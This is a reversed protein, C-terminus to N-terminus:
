SIIFRGYASLREEMGQLEGSGEVVWGVEKDHYSERKEFEQKEWM